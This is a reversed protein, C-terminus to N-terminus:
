EAHLTRWPMEGAIADGFWFARGRQRVGNGEGGWGYPETETWWPLRRLQQAARAFHCVWKDIPSYGDVVADVFACLPERALAREWPKM